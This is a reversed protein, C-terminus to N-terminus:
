WSGLAVATVDGSQLDKVEVTSHPNESKSLRAAEIAYDKRDRLQPAYRRDPNRVTRGDNRNIRRCTHFRGRTSSCKTLIV